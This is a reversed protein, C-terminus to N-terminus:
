RQQWQKVEMYNSLSWHKLSFFVLVTNLVGDWEREIFFIETNEDIDTYKYYQLGQTLIVCKQSKLLSLLYTIKGNPSDIKSLNRIINIHLGYKTNLYKFSTSVRYRKDQKAWKVFFYPIDDSSIISIDIKTTTLQIGSDSNKEIEM